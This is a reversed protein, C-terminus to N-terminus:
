GIDWPRDLETSRERARRMLLNHLGEEEPEDRPHRQIYFGDAYLDWALRQDELSLTLIRKLRNRLTPDEIPAIAEVRDDLNRRMWDASGIYLLPDGNNGFYYIRSHELFRGIISIIRINDSF